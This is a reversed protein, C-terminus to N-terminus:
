SPLADGETPLAVGQSYSTGMYATLIQSGDPAGWDFAVRDLALPVGRWVAAHRFGLQHYIQPMQAAHGFSDPLYGARMSGGHLDASALGRQLDRVLTEGSVLFEDPLTYWPGVQIQGSRVARELRGRAEPRVELYDDIVVTQGDMLFRFDPDAETLTLLQDWLEVLQTRFTEFTAYWERDWHTHPVIYVATRRSSINSRAPITSGPRAM